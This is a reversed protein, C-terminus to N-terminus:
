AAFFPIDTFWFGRFQSFNSRLCVAAQRRLPSSTPPHDGSPSALLTLLLGVPECPRGDCVSCRSERQVVAVCGAVQTPEM